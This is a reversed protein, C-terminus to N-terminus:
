PDSLMDALTRLGLLVIAQLFVVIGDVVDKVWYANEGTGADIGQAVAVLPLFIFTM